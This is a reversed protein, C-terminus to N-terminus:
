EPRATEVPPFDVPTEFAENIYNTLLNLAVHGVIEVLEGDSYGAKRVEAVDQDDVRGRKRAVKLAFRVAADAKADTSWGSRNAAIEADDLQALDKGLYSHASNCYDCGNYNAVALAIRARTAANIQGKGLAVNLGIYGELTAPSNGILRFMNPLSSFRSGLRKELGQLLERSAQPTEAISAPMAIRPM